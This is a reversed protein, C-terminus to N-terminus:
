PFICFKYFSYSPDKSEQAVSILTVCLNSDWLNDTGNLVVFWGGSQSGHTKSLPLGCCKLDVCITYETMSTWPIPGKRDFDLPSQNCVDKFCLISPKIYLSKTEHETDRTLAWDLLWWSIAPRVNKINKMEKVNKSNKPNKTMKSKKSIESIEDMKSMKTMISIKHQTTNTVHKAVAGCEVRSQVM